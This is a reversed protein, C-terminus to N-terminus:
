LYCITAISDRLQKYCSNTDCSDTTFRLLANFIFLAYVFCVFTVLVFDTSESMAKQIANDVNNFAIETRDSSRKGHMVLVVEPKM